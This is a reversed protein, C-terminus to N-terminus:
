SNLEKLRSAADTTPFDGRCESALVEAQEQKQILFPWLEDLLEVIDAKKGVSWSFIPKHHSKAVRRQHTTGVGTIRKLFQITPKHTNTVVVQRVWVKKKGVKWMGITGEGDIFGAIYAAHTGRLRLM